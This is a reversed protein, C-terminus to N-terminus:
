RVKILQTHVSCLVFIGYIETNLIASIVFLTTEKRM